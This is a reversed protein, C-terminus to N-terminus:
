AIKVVGWPTNFHDGSEFEDGEIVEVLALAEPFYGSREFDTTLVRLRQAPITIDAGIITLPNKM